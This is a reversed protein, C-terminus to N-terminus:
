APGHEREFGRDSATVIEEVEKVIRGGSAFDVGIAAAARAYYPTM